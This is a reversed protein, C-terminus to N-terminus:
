MGTATRTTTPTLTSPQSNGHDTRALLGGIGGAGELSGSLDKGRTYSRPLNNADREQIVLNGDYVYRIVQNTVLHQRELHIRYRIRRRMKGDYAFESRWANTVWVSTLQNEDDYAFCRKGDGTLNGNLDYTFNTPHCISM